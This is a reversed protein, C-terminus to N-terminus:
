YFIKSKLLVFFFGFHIMQKYHRYRQSCSIEQLNLEHTHSCAPWNSNTENRVVGDLAKIQSYCCQQFIANEDMKEDLYTILVHDLLNTFDQSDMVAGDGFNRKM